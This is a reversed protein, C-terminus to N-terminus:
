VKSIKDYVQTLELWQSLRLSQARKKSDIGAQDLLNEVQDRSLHLGATLSNRLTKRKHLFGAKVLKFYQDLLRSEVLPQPFLDIRIVASDVKPPPYFSTAPIRATIYPEGYVLISLALVSLQGATACIRRAVEHQVTLIMRDPQQEAELLRRIIASTIYYPINAVVVYQNTQILDRPHLQLIDGQVILVNEFSKLIDTLPAILRKDLEVATVQGASSALVRTLHGLGAGIELVSDQPTLDAVEQIRGLANQDVLFNQGLSKDPKLGYKQMLAPTNLPSLDMPKMNPNSIDSLLYIIDGSYDPHNQKCLVTILHTLIM